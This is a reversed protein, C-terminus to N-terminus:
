KELKILYREVGPDVRYPTVYREADPGVPPLPPPLFNAASHFRNIHAGEPKFAAGGGGGHVM